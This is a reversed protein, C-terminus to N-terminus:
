ATRAVATGYESSLCIMLNLPEKISVDPLKSMEMDNRRQLEKM